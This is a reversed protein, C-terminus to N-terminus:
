SAFTNRHCPFNCYNTVYVAFETSEDRDGVTCESTSISKYKDAVIDVTTWLTGVDDFEKDFELTALVVAYKKAAIM